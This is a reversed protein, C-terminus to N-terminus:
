VSVDGPLKSFGLGGPSYAQGIPLIGYGNNDGTMPHDPRISFEYAVAATQRDFRGKQLQFLRFDSKLEKEFKWGRPRRRWFSWFGEPQSGLERAGQRLLPYILFVSFFNLWKRKTVSDYYQPDNPFVLLRREKDRCVYSSM